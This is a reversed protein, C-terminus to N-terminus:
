PIEFYVVPMPVFNWGNGLYGPFFTARTGGFSGSPWWSTSPFPPIKIYRTEFRLINGVNRKGPPMRHSHSKISIYLLHCTKDVSVSRVLSSVLQGWRHVYRGDDM